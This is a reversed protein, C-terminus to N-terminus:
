VNRRTVDFTEPDIIIVPMDRSMAYRVTYGTGSFGKSSDYVALVVDANDVMYRDRVYFAGKNFKKCVTVVEDCNNLLAAYREKQEETWGNDQGKFPIAGILKVDKNLRRLDLVAEGAWIDVGLACGTIFRKYGMEYLSYIQSRIVIKLAKCAPNEEDYGFTFGEPRHGTFSCTKM